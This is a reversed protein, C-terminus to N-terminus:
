HGRRGELMVRADWPLRLWFQCFARLVDQDSEWPSGMILQEWTEDALQQLWPKM